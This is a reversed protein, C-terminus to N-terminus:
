CCIGCSALFSDLAVDAELCKTILAGQLDMKAGNVQAFHVFAGNGAAIHYKARTSRAVAMRAVWIWFQVRWVGPPLKIRVIPACCIWKRRVYELM